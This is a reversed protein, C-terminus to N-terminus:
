VLPYANYVDAVEVNDLLGPTQFSFDSTAGTQTHVSNEWMAIGCAPGNTYLLAYDETNIVAYDNDGGAHAMNLAYWGPLAQESEDRVLEWSWECEGAYPVPDTGEPLDSAKATVLVYVTDGYCM